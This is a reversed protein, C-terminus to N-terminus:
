KKKGGKSKGNKSKYAMTREKWKQYVMVLFM